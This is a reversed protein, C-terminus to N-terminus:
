GRDVYTGGVGGRGEWEWAAVSGRGLCYAGVLGVVGSDDGEAGCDGGEFVLDCGGQGGEGGQAGFDEGGRRCNEGGVGLATFDWEDFEEVVCLVDTPIGYRRRKAGSLLFRRTRM